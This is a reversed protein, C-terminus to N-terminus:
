VRGEAQPSLVPIAPVAAERDCHVVHGLNAFVQRAPAALGTRM